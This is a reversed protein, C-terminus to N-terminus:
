PETFAFKQLITQGASSRVLDLFDRGLQPNKSATTMAIPYVVPRTTTVELAVRVKDKMLAADTTYVFGADVEGRALYDLTQRVNQTYIFREQLVTWLRAKDLVAKAYRGVPVTAPQGIAIRRVAKTKLEDLTNFRLPSDMPLALVLRNGAFKFRTAAVILKLTLAKDMAEEDASAFVDVPAGEAIQKVLVDSAAFNFIVKDRAHVREFEAGINKFANTLSAAASVWLETAGVRPAFAHFSLCCILTLRLTCM